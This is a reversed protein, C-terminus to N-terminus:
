SLRGGSTWVYIKLVEAASFTSYCMQFSRCSVFDTKMYHRSTVDVREVSGDDEPWVAERLRTVRQTHKHSLSDDTGAAARESWEVSSDKM